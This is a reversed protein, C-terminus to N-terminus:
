LKVLYIVGPGGQQGTSWSGGDRRGGYGYGGSGPGGISGNPAGYASGGSATQGEIVFALPSESSLSGSNGSYSDNASGGTAGGPTGGTGGAAGTGGSSGRGGQGGNATVNGITTAGGDGGASSCCPGGTGPAGITYAVSGTLAVQGGALGGSGGGGAGSPCCNHNGGGGGGGGGVAVVYAYGSTSTGTYTGSTTLTEVTTSSTFVNDIPLGGVRTINVSQNGTGGTYWFRISTAETTLALSVAGSTTNVQIIESGNAAIFKVYTVIGTSCTISYMGTTFKKNAQYLRKPAAAGVGTLSDGTSTAQVLKTIAM